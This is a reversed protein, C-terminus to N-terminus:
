HSRTLIVILAIIAVIVTILATIKMWSYPAKGYVKGTQGNVLFQYVKANYTYGAVWVPLLVHKYTINSFATDVRLNRQTDGGVKRSCASRIEAEMQSKGVEWAQKMDISYEEAAWGSLYSPAYPVLKDTMYPYTGRIMDRSVGTSACVLEDDFFQQHNGSVWTWRTHQVQKQVQHTNGKDDRETVWETTYYYDGREAEWWSSTFADFTWHPLYVGDIDSLESKHKLDSPRFWLGAIWQRFKELAQKKDVGFPVLSEPRVGRSLAENEFVQKSGCFPCETSITGAPVSTAAGCNGCKFSKSDTGFGTEKPAAMYEDFRYEKIEAQTKPIKEEFGCFECKLSDANPNFLLEAGCGKCPFKHTKKEEADAM